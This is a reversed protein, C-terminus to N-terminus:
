DKIEWHGGKAPGIRKLIGKEKLRALNWEIGRITLGTKASLEERTIKPNEKILVLIKGVTKEVTKQAPAPV